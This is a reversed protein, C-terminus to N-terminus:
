VLDLEEAERALLRPVAPEVHEAVEVQARGPLRLEVLEGGEVDRGLLPAPPPVLDEGAEVLGVEVALEVQGLAHRALLELLDHADGPVDASRGTAPGVLRGRGRALDGLGLAVEEEAVLLLEHADGPRLQGGEAGEGARARRGLGAVVAVSAAGGLAAAV